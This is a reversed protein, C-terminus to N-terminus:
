SVSSIRRQDVILSYIIIIGHLMYVKLRFDKSSRYSDKFSNQSHTGSEFDNVNMCDFFHDFMRVFKVTEKVENGGTEELATAVSNSLVQITLLM